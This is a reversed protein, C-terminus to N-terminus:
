QNNQSLKEIQALGPKDRFIRCNCEDMNTRPFNTENKMKESM